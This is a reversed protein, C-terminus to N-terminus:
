LHFGGFAARSGGQEIILRSTTHKLPASELFGQGVRPVKTRCASFGNSPYFNSRSYPWTLGSLNSIVRVM